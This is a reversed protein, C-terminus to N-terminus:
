ARAQRRALWWPAAIMGAAVLLAAFSILKGRAYAPSSFELTVVQAGPPVVVGILSHDARHVPTPSGDVTAHWDPYWNESVVLYTEKEAAGTLGVIIRGPAWSLVQAAVGAKAPLPPTLPPPNVSSTDPFLVLSQYPFRPNLVTPLLQAEPVRAAVPFVRAYPPVSDREYLVAPSGFSTTTPPVVQHFEPVAQPQRLILFRISLLDLLTPTFLNKWGADKGGLEDYFRLENGHYGLASPVRYAMLISLRYAEQPDLVRYPEKVARLHSTVADDRFLEAARPSFDFFLRDVSWLDATLVCALALAAGLGALKGRTVLWLIGGAVLAFGLLRLSGTMLEGANATVQAMREPLALATAIAQLIGVVGLLAFGGVIATAVLVRRPPVEGRLVRDLGITALLSIAFAVLYFVMGMARLKKLMPLLEYWPRYFPTHGAFALLLFLLGIGGIFIVLSRRRRDGWAFAALIVPLVGLYETHFKLANRGWYHDLVGNFQPLLTTAIEEPPMAFLNAYEWGTNPGGAARPSYPIYQLFPLVQVATIGAGVVVALTALALSPWPSSDTPRGPDWFALYLTWIGLAILLFYGMQYHGLIILAVVVAFVGFAWRQRERIARWLILFALPALASVFLKGDHGPSVQSAVIGSLEYAVGGVTGASWSLGLGRAFLYTFWGALVFHLVMGLTIAVDTPMIWRLWATPYFIDGHMAAIYPLGGFLYPNWQPISGTAKFQEAGFLRFSYGANLMDSNAGGFLIKGGLLPWLLALSALLCVLLAALRPWRPEYSHDLPDAHTV